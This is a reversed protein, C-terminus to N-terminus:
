YVELTAYKKNKRIAVAFINSIHFIKFVSRLRALHVYTEGGYTQDLLTHVTMTHVFRSGFVCFTLFFESKLLFVFFVGIKPTFWKKWAVSQCTILRYM